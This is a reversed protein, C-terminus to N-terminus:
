SITEYAPQIAGRDVRFLFKGPVGVTSRYVLNIVDDSLSGNVTYSSIGDGANFGVMANRAWDLKLYHLMVFSKTGDTTLVIQFPNRVSLFQDRSARYFLVESWTVIFVLSLIFDEQGPFGSQVDSGTRNLFIQVQASSIGFTDKM